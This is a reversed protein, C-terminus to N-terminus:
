WTISLIAIVVTRTTGFTNSPSISSTVNNVCHRRLVSTPLIVCRFFLFVMLLHLLEEVLLVM